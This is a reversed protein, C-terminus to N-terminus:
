FDVPDAAPAAAVEADAARELADVVAHREPLGAATGAARYERRAGPTSAGGGTARARRGALGCGDTALPIRIIFRRCNSTSPAPM